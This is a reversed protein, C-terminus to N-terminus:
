DPKAPTRRAGAAGDAPVVRVLRGAHVLFLRVAPTWVAAMGAFRDSARGTVSSVERVGVLLREAEATWEFVGDGEDEGVIRVAAARDSRDDGAILRVGGRGAIVTWAAGPAARYWVSAEPDRSVVWWAGGAAVAAAGPALLTDSLADPLAESLTSGDPLPRRLVAGDDDAALVAPSEHGPDSVLARVDAGGDVLRWADGSRRLV